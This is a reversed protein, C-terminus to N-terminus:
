LRKMKPLKLLPFQQVDKLVNPELVDYDVNILQAADEAIHRSEAVVFAIAEGVFCVEDKALPYPRIDQSISPNPHLQVQRQNVPEELDTYIFVARVGELAEAASTNISKILAHAHPSRAFAGHLIGPFDIDDVYRGRGTLLAEDEGRLVEAGLHRVGM